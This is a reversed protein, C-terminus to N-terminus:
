GDSEILPQFVMLQRAGLADRGQWAGETGGRPASALDLDLDSLRTGLEDPKPPFRAVVRGDQDTVRAVAGAPLSLDALRLSWWQLSVVAVAAGVVEETGPPIVPVAFNVSAVQAARDIQFVGVSFERAGIARQFYPRNAVNVPSKLPRANCLLDGNAQPVGINVYAANLALVDALYKGCLPDAPRHVQPMGALKTLFERTNQILQQQSSAVAALAARAHNDAAAISDTRHVQAQYIVLLVAPLTAVLVLWRIRASM